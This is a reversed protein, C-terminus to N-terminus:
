AAWTRSPTVDIKRAAGAAAAVQADVAERSEASLCLLVQAREHARGSRSPPSPAYFDHTLLMVNVQGLFADDGGCRQHIEARQRGV